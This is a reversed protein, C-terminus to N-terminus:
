ASLSVRRLMLRGERLLDADQVDHGYVTLIAGYFLARFRALRWTAEDIPGYAERFEAHAAAPLFSHAISLDLAVDGVHVDGWDIVGCLRLAEDVLLHRVYLDGHVLTDCRPPRATANEDIVQMLPALDDLYGLAAVKELHQRAQSTRKVPELRGLKDGPAGWSSFEEAPIAHLAALFKGLPRAAATRQRDDLNAVCATRGPLKRYGAYSWLFQETARGIFEPAPIPLPLRPALSPLVRIESELCDAGLQRRPFRFVFEDNVLYATNDWGVGFPEIRSVALSPFQAAILSRALEASVVNEAAWSM